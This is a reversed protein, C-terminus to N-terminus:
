ESLLQGLHWLKCRVASDDVAGLGDLKCLVLGLILNRTDLMKELFM